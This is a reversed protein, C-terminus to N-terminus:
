HSTSTRPRMAFGLNRLITRVDLVTLPPYHGSM